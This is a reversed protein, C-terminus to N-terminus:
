SARRRGSGACRRACSTRGRRHGRGPSCRACRCARGGAAARRNRDRGDGDEGSSPLVCQPVPLLEGVLEAGQRALVVRSGDVGDGGPRVAQTLGLCTFEELGGRGRCPRCAQVRVWSWAARLRAPQLRPMAASASRIRSMKRPLHGVLRRKDLHGEAFLHEGEEHLEVGGAGSGVAEGLRHLVRERLMRVGLDQQAEGARRGARPGSGPRSRHRGCGSRRRGPVPPM